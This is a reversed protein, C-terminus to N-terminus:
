KGKKNLQEAKAQDSESVGDSAPQTVQPEDPEDAPTVVIAEVEAATHNFKEALEDITVGRVYEAKMATADDQPKNNEAM